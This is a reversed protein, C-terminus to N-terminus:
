KLCFVAYSIKVHSSNLRTSKRDESYGLVLQDVDDAPMWEPPNEVVVRDGEVLDVADSVLSAGGARGALMRLNLRIVPFRDEDWTGFHVAWAAISALQYDGAVNVSLSREYRGVMDVGRPGGTVIRRAKGGEPRSVTLDNVVGQDDPTPEFPASVHGAAYDLTLVIWGG